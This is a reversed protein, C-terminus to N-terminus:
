LSLIQEWNLTTRKWFPHLFLESLGGEGALTDVGRVYTLVKKKLNQMLLIQQSKKPGVSFASFGIYLRVEIARLVSSKNVMALESENKSGRHFEEWLELFCINM